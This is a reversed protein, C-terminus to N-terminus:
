GPPSPADAGALVLGFVGLGVLSALGLASGADTLGIVIAIVLAAGLGALIARGVHRIAWQTLQARQKSQVSPGETRQTM